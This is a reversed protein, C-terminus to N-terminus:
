RRFDFYCSVSVQSGSYDSPLPGLPNSAIVARLASRDVDGNGSSQAVKVDTVTGDRQINFTVYVRPASTLNPSITSLLWNGSVRSRVAEVYWGFRNGFDGQGFALGTEGGSTTTQSYSMAPHGNEGFPIANPPPTLQQKQIRTNIRKNEQPKIEDKFKPIEVAHEPPLPKVPETQYLGPNDNAVTNPTSQMPSPLPVGPLSAVTGVHTSSGKEFPNGWDAGHGFHFLGYGLLAGMLAAHFGLSALLSRRLSERGEFPLPFTQASM